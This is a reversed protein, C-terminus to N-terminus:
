PADDDGALRQDLDARRERQASVRQELKAAFRARPVALLVFSLPVSLVVAVLAGIFGHLGALNILGWLALFLGFRLITYLWMSGLWGAFTPEKSQSEETPQAESM